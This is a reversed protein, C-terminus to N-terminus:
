RQLTISGLVLIVDDNTTAEGTVRLEIDNAWTLTGTVVDATASTIATTSAGCVAQGCALFTTAANRIIQIGVLWKGAESVTPTFEILVNNHAGEIARVRMVKSNANNTTTGGAVLWITDENLYATGAPLTYTALIDEGAGVNGTATTFVELVPSEEPLWHSVIISTTTDALGVKRRYTLGAYTTTIEGSTGSIYYMSGVSLASLGTVRGSIRFTGAEASALDSIAFGVVKATSSAYSLDADCQYWRGATRGGDGESLYCCDATSLAEGAVGYVDVDVNSGPIASVDDQTWVPSTPPDTDDPPAFVVKYTTPSLFIAGTRGASDLVIPNTNPTTLDADSFTDQKTTTGAAYFFLQYGAADGAISFQNKIVPALTGAM